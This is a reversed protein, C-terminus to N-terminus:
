KVNRKSRIKQQIKSIMDRNNEDEDDLVDNQENSDMPQSVGDMDKDYNEKLVYDENQHYYRNPEEEGNQDIDVMDDDVRGGDFMKKRKAMIAAAISTHKEEDAEPEPQDMMEREINGGKYYPPRGNNHQREMDPVPNGFSDADEEDYKSPPQTSPSAPSLRSQMDSEDDRESLEIGSDKPEMVPGGYALKQAKKMEASAIDQAYEHEVQKEYASRKNNHQKQMDSVEPGQRNPGEEDYRSQPQARDSEPPTSDIFDEEQDRMTKDRKSFSDSGMPKPQSLKTPSPRQAQEITSKDEWDDNKSPKNGSNRSQSGRDAHSEDPMPRDEDKASIEVKGGDAMKKKKQGFAVALQDGFQEVRTKESDTPQKKSEELKPNQQTEGGDAMKKRKNKKQISYAIAISQKQPKGAKMETEINKSMAKKSPSNMLPM